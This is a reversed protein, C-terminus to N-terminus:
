LLGPKQDCFIKTMRAKLFSRQQGNSDSLLGPRLISECSPLQQTKHCAASSSNTRELGPSTVTTVMTGGHPGLYGLDFDSNIPLPHLLKIYKM